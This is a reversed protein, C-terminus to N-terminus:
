IKWNNFEFLINKKNIKVKLVIIEIEEFEQNPHQIPISILKNLNIGIIVLEFLRKEESAEKFYKRVCDIAEIFKRNIVIIFIIFKLNNSNFLQDLIKILRVSSKFIPAEGRWKQNGLIISPNDQIFQKKNIVHCFIVGM